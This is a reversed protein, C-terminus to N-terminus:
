GGNNQEEDDDRLAMDAYQELRDKKGPWFAWLAIGGFLLMLWLGWLQRFFSSLEHLFEM